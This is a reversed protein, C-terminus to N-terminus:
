HTGIIASFIKENEFERYARAECLAAEADTRTAFMAANSRDLTRPPDGCGQAIWVSPELEVCYICRPLRQLRDIEAAILAGAKALNRTADKPKWWAGDFPWGMPPSHRVERGVAQGYAADLYSTAARLLEGGSHTDDHGPSWGEMDIQRRREAAILDVGDLEVPNVELSKENVMFREGTMPDIFIKPM